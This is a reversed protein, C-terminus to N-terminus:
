GHGLVAADFSSSSHHLPTNAWAGTCSCTNLVNALYGCHSQKMGIATRTRVMGSKYIQYTFFSFFFFLSFPPFTSPPQQRYVKGLNMHPQPWDGKVELAVNFTRVADEYENARMQLAPAAFNV